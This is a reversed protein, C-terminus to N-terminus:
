GEERDEDWVLHPCGNENLYNLLDALLKFEHTEHPPMGTRSITLVLTDQATKNDEDQRITFVIGNFQATSNIM